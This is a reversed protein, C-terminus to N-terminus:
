GERECIATLQAAWAEWGEVFAMAKREKRDEERWHCAHATDALAETLCPQRVLCDHPQLRRDHETM